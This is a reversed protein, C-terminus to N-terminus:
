MWKSIVLNLREICFKEWTGAIQNIEKFLDQFKIPQQIKLLATENTPIFIRNLFYFPAIQRDSQM